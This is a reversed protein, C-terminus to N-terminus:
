ISPLGAGDEDWDLGERNKNASKNVDVEGDFSDVGETPNIVITARRVANGERGGNNDEILLHVGDLHLLEEVAELVPKCGTINNNIGAQDMALTAGMVNRHRLPDKPFHLLSPDFGIHLGIASHNISQTLSPLDGMGMFHETFHKIHTARWINNHEVVQHPPDM